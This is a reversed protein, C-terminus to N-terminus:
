VEIERLGALVAGVRAGPLMGPVTASQIAHQRCEFTVEYHAGNEDIWVVTRDALETCGVDGCRDGLIERTTAM